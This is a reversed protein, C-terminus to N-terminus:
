FKFLIYSLRFKSHTVTDTVKHIKDVVFLKSSKHDNKLQVQLVNLYYGRRLVIELKKKVRGM